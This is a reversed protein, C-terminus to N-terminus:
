AKGQNWISGLLDHQVNEHELLQGWFEKNKENHMSYWRSYARRQLASRLISSLCKEPLISFFFKALDSITKKNVSQSTELEKKICEATKYENIALKQYISKLNEEINDKNLMQWGGLNLYEPIPPPAGRSVFRRAVFDINYAAIKIGM